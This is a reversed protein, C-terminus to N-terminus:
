RPWLAGGTVPQSQTAASCHLGKSGAWKRAKWEVVLQEAGKGRRRVRTRATRAAQIDERAEPPGTRVNWELAQDSKRAGVPRIDSPCDEPGSGFQDRSSSSGGTKVDDIANRCNM